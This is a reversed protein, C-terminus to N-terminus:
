RSLRDQLRYWGVVAPLFWPNGNYLPRTPFARGDLATRGERKGLLQQAIRTGFYPALSVGQGCYGLCFYSGDPQRGLHPLSDFTYAVFGGWSRSVRAKALQPFLLAMERHLRRACTRADADLAAVRGGFLLRRRDESLRYYFVIRRTDSVVRNRPLLEHAVSEPLAETAIIHSCIPIVRRRLWNNPRDTYGNTAVILDRSRLLGRQTNLEFGGSARAIANVSCPAVIRAGALRARELLGRHFKGPHLSAHAPYILAGYYSDTGIEQRMDERGLVQLGQELDLPEQRAERQLMAFASRSHAAHLRGVHVFDCEIAEDRLFESIWALANLGERRIAYALEPGYSSALTAFSLKISPSVQGGNRTSCGWGPEHSDLVLTDRGNRALALAAALGSYGSGLIAVDCSEPLTCEFPSEPPAALRWYPESKYDEAWITDIV